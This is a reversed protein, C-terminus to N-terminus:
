NNSRNEKCKFKGEKKFALTLRLALLMQARKETAVTGHDESRNSGFRETTVFSQDFLFM